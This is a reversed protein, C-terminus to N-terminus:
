SKHPGIWISLVEISPQNDKHPISFLYDKGEVAFGERVKIEVIPNLELTIDTPVAVDLEPNFTQLLGILDKVKM